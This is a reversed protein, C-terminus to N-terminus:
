FSKNMNNIFENILNKQQNLNKMNKNLSKHRKGGGM